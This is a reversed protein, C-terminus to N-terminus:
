MCTSLSTQQLSDPISPPTPVAAAVATSNRATEHRKMRKQQVSESDSIPPRDDASQASLDSTFEARQM